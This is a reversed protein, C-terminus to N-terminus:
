CAGQGGLSLNIVDARRAPMTGSHNTVGAAFLMGQVIDNYSGRGSAGLVRIPMVRAMPAVGPVGIGNFTEAAITGAVHTGHFSAGPAAPKSDDPDADLGNGDGSNNVESVFDFGPVLMRALDPHEAIIGTDVVAVIPTFSPRPSLSDLLNYADPLKILDLHPMRPLLADNPPWSGYGVQQAQVVGNHEVYEYQGSARLQKIAVATDFALAGQASAGGFVRPRTAATKATTGLARMTTARTAANAPLELLLPGGPWTRARVSLQAARLAGAELATAGAAGGAPKALMQGAVFAPETADALTSTACSTGLSVPGWSVEYTGAGSYAFVSVLYTGTTGIRVCESRATGISQALINGDLDAIYLDLDAAAPNGFNLEVVQGATLQVRYLDWEDGAERNPGDPGTNPKNVYGVVHAPNGLRQPAQATNNSAREQQLADNTDSDM